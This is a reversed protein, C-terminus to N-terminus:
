GEKRTAEVVALAAALGSVVGATECREMSVMADCYNTAEEWKAAEKADAEAAALLRRLEAEIKELNTTM